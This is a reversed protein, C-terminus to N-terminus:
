SRKVSTSWGSSPYRDISFSDDSKYNGVEASVRLRKPNRLLSAPVDVKIYNDSRYAIKAKLFKAPDDAGPGSLGSKFLGANHSSGSVNWVSVYYESKSDSDTNLKVYVYNWDVKNLDVFSIKLTVTRKGNVVKVRKIDQGFGGLCPRSFEDCLGSTKDNYWWPDYLLVDGTRDTFYTTEALASPAAALGSFALAALTALATLARRM